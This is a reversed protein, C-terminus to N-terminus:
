ISIAGKELIQHCSKCLCILNDGDNAQLYNEIGFERFPIIHHVDLEQGVDSEKSLCLACEFNGARRAEGRMKYWNPGYYYVRGGRWQCHNEGTNSTFYCERSCFRPQSDRTHYQYYEFVVGCCDCTTTSMGGQWTGTEAGKPVDGSKWYCERSCYPGRHTGTIQSLKRRFEKGCVVCELILYKKKDNIFCEKSCYKGARSGRLQCNQVKYKIGCYKCVLETKKGDDRCKFSCFKGWGDRVRSPSAYFETGCRQCVVDVM